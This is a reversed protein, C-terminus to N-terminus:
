LLCNAELVRKQINSYSQKNLARLDKKICKLKWCLSTLNAASSTVPKDRNAVWVIVRPVIKKFWIGVYQNGTNNPSFFGLEYFGGPSSLTQGISLPSSSNIAAYVCTTFITLLFSCAFLVMGM